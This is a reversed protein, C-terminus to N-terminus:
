KRWRWKWESLGAKEPNNWLYDLAHGYDAVGRILHDYSESLWFDGSRELIRNAECATFRKFSSLIKLLDCGAIPEIVLHAHNPMVCYGHLVYRKGDFHRMSDTIAKSVREDELLCEGYGADLYQQLKESHLHMLRKFEADTLKDLEAERNLFDRERKWEDLQSQPMSDILRMTVAYIASDKTWHPLNAGKRIKITMNVGLHVRQWCM